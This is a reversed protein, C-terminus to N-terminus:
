ESPRGNFHVSLFSPSPPPDQVSLTHIDETTAWAQALFGFLVDSMRMGSAAAAKERQLGITLCLQIRLCTCVHLCLCTFICTPIYLSLCPHPSDPVCVALPLMDLSVCVNTGACMHGVLRWTDLHWTAVLDLDYVLLIGWGVVCLHPCVGNSGVWHGAGLQRVANKGVHGSGAGVHVRDWWVHCRDFRRLFCNDHVCCTTSIPTIPPPSLAALLLFFFIL